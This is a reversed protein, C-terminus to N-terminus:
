VCIPRYIEFLLDDSSLLLQDLLDWIGGPVGGQLRDSEFLTVCLGHFRLALCPPLHPAGELSEDSAEYFQRLSDDLSVHSRSQLM